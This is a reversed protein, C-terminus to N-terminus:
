ARCAECTCEVGAARYRFGTAILEREFVIVGAHCPCCSPHTVEFAREVAAGQYPLRVRPTHYPLARPIKEIRPPRRGYRTVLQTGIEGAVETM